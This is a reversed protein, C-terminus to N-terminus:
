RTVYGHDAISGWRYGKESQGEVRMSLTSLMFARTTERKRVSRRTSKGTLRGDSFM